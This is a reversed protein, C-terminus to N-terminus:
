SNILEFACNYADVDISLDVCSDSNRGRKRLKVHPASYQNSGMDGLIANFCAFLHAWIHDLTSLDYEDFASEVKSILMNITTAQFKLSSVRKKLSNFFGLDLINLDPSQPPQTVVIINWGDQVGFQRFFELNGCGNHPKAGDHQIYIAADKRWFLKEKVKDIVGGERTMINLYYKSDLSKPHTEITGVPRNKSSRSAPSTEVCPWMGIKGDFWTGDPRRQPRAMAVVFMIKLIHSKHKCTPNNPLITNPLIKMKSSVDQLYFWSEDVHVTNEGNKYQTRDLGHSRDAKDLVWRLRKQKQEETLHPKVWVKTITSKLKKLFQQVTRLAFTHGLQELDTQLARDSMYRGSNAYDQAISEIFGVIDPTLKTKRGCNQKKRKLDPAL